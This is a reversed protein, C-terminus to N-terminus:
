GLANRSNAPSLLFRYGVGHITLFHRPLRPEPELKSRLKLVHADVTRTNPCFDYGWVENLIADRTLARDANRIFFLLLNYEGRTVQIEEGRRKINRREIDVEVEGFRVSPRDSLATRRLIARIRARLERDDFPKVLYDDAGLELMLVAELADNPPSLFIIPTRIRNGRIQRCFDAGHLGGLPLDAIVLQPRHRCLQELATEADVALLPTFNEHELLIRIRERVLECGAIVLIQNM